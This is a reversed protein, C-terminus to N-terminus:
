LLTRHLELKRWDVDSQLMSQIAFGTDWRVNHLIRAGCKHFIVWECCRLLFEDFCYFFQFFIELPFFDNIFYFWLKHSFSEFLIEFHAYYGNFFSNSNNELSFDRDFAYLDRLSSIITINLDNIFRLQIETNTNQSWFVSINM